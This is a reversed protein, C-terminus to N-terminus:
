LSVKSVDIPRSLMNSSMDAVLPIGNTEPVFQFEVGDVTENDCYYVYSANPDLKWNKQDEIKTFKSPKPYVLNVNGYKAAEKAAKASWSGLIWNSNFNLLIFDCWDIKGTVIYDATKIKGLLNLCVAAFMGTGGSTMLLVKYNDPINRYNFISNNITRGYRVENSFSSLFMCWIEQQRFVTMIFKQIIDEEIHCRWWVWGVAEM